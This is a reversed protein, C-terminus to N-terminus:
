TPSWVGVWKLYSMYIVIKWRTALIELVSGLLFDSRKSKTRSCVFEGWKCVYFARCIHKVQRTSINQGSCGEAPGFPFGVTTVPARFLPSWINSL